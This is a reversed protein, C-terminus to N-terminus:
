ESILGQAKLLSKTAARLDDKSYSQNFRQLAKQVDSGANVKASVGGGQVMTKKQIAKLDKQLKRVETKAKPEDSLSYDAYAMKAALLIGDPRGKVDPHNLYSNMSQTLPNSMNWVKNGSIDNAFCDKFKPHNVVWQEAQQRKIENNKTDEVAKLKADWSKELNKQIIEAKKAEVQPKYQPNDMLWEELQQITYEPEQQTQQIKVNKQIAEQVTREITSPVEDLKRRLEMSINKWKRDDSKDLSIQGENQPADEDNIEQGDQDDAATDDADENVPDTSTDTEEEIVSENEEIM